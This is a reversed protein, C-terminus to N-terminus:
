SVLPPTGEPNFRFRTPRKLSPSDPWGLSITAGLPARDSEYVFFRYLNVGIAGGANIPVDGIFIVPMIDGVPLPGTTQVLVEFAERVEVYKGESLFRKPPKFSVRKSEVSLVDPLRSKPGEPPNGHSIQSSM